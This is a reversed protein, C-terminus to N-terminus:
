GLHPLGWIGNPFSFFWDDPISKGTIRGYLFKLRNKGELNLYSGQSSSFSPDRVFDTLYGGRLFGDGKVNVVTEIFWGTLFCIHINANLSCPGGQEHTYLVAGDRTSVGLIDTDQNLMASLLYCLDSYAERPLHNICKPKFAMGNEDLPHIYYNANNIFVGFKGNGVLFAVPIKPFVMQPTFVRKPQQGLDIRNVPNGNYDFGPEM